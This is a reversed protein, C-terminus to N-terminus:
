YEVYQGFRYIVYVPGYKQVIQTDRNYEKAASFAAKKSNYKTSSYLCGDFGLQWYNISAL